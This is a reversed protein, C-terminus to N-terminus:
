QPSLCEWSQVPGMAAPTYTTYSFNGLGQDLPLSEQPDFAALPYALSAAHASSAPWEHESVTEPDQSFHVPWMLRSGYDTAKHPTTTAVSWQQSALDETEEKTHSLSATDSCATQSSASRSLDSGPLSLPTTPSELAPFTKTGAATTLFPVSATFPNIYSPSPSPTLDNSGPARYDKFCSTALLDDCPVSLAQRPTIDCTASTPVYQPYPLMPTLEAGSYDPMNPQSFPYMPSAGHSFVTPDTFMHPSVQPAHRVAPAQRAYAHFTQRCDRPMATLRAEAEMAKNKLPVRKVNPLIDLREPHFFPHRFRCSRNRAMQRNKRADSLREFGYIHLQRTFSRFSTTKFFRGLVQTEFQPIDYVVVSLDTADWAIGPHASENSVIDFLKRVFPPISKTM